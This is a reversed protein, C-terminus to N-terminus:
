FRLRHRRLAGTGIEATPPQVATFQVGDLSWRHESAQEARKARVRTRVSSAAEETLRRREHVGRLADAATAGAEAMLAAHPADRAPM